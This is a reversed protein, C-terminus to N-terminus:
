PWIWSSSSLRRAWTASSSSWTRSPCSAALCFSRRRSSSSRWALRSSKTKSDARTVPREVSLQADVSVMLLPVEAPTSAPSQTTVEVPTSTPTTDLTPSFQDVTEVIILVSM